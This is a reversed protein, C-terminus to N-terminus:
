ALGHLVHPNSDAGVRSAGIDPFNYTYLDILNLCLLPLLLVAGLVVAKESSFPATRPPIGVWLVSSEM